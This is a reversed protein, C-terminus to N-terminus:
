QEVTKILRARGKGVQLIHIPKVANRHKDFHISGTVGKFTPLNVLASRVSERTIKGSEYAKRIAAILVNAADFGLAATADPKSGYEKQFAEMFRLSEPTKLESSFHTTFYAGQISSHTQELLGESDWGDGGLLKWKPKAPLAKAMELINSYYLPLFLADPNATNIQQLLSDFDAHDPTFAEDVLVKGGLKRFQDGFFEALGSSYSSKGNRIIAVKRLGLDHFAFKAMASGQMPDLYCSRFIFQGVDTIGPSTSAPTIMPTKHIQALSAAVASRESAVEGLLAVVDDEILQNVVEITRKRSSETDKTLLELRPLGDKLSNAQAIALQIARHTSKGFGSESGTLSSFEGIKM